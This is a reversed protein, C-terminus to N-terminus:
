KKPAEKSKADGKKAGEKKKDKDKTADPAVPVLGTTKVDKATPAVVVSMKSTLSEPMPLELKTYLQALLQPNWGSKEMDTVQDLVDKRIRAMPPLSLRREAQEFTKIKDQHAKWIVEAMRMHGFAQQDEGVALLYYARSVYGDITARMRHMDGEERVAYGTVREVVFADLSPYIDTKFSYKKKLYNWWYNADAERNHLYLVFVADLLFNGHANHLNEVAGAVKAEAAIMEEYTRNVNPIIDVNPTMEAKGEIANIVLRGRQFAIQMCQYIIRRLPLLDVDGRVEKLGKVGWYIGQSEPMRWDLPGYKEDAEKMVAPDMKYDQRLTHVRNSQAENQPNLLEDFNVPGNGLVKSMDYAWSLKYYLHGDDLNGGIKHQFFWALERHVLVDHPNYRLAEDRLLEIARKVWLWRDHQNPFKISINYAMNWAQHMWVTTFNPQLKTIWDALQVMEFYKSDQQMQMARLWLMNAIIGRFGGLAVTTFALVPPANELPNDMRVLGMTKRDGNLQKQVASSGLLLVVTLLLLIPKYFKRQSM